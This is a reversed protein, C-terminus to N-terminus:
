TKCFGLSSISIPKNAWDRLPQLVHHVLACLNIVEQTGPVNKIGKASATASATVEELKFNKSIDM